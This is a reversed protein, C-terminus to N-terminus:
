DSANASEYAATSADAEAILDEWPWRVTAYKRYLLLQRDVVAMESTADNYALVLGRGESDIQISEFRELVTRLNGKQIRQERAHAREYIKDISLGGVLEEDTSALIAAMAHAYIGTSKKRTRIGASVRKAFQQYRPNLQDAYEMTAFQLAELDGIKMMAPQEHTIKLHDLLQLTLKQLIGANGFSDHTAVEELSQSFELNLAEGGDQLVRKLEEKTWFVSLEHVRGTLDPNLYLIMNSESWVGVVVTFLGYDWLAKLDFSFNRGEDVSLYHFDEIVLRRDSALILEAVFKLDSIDHGVRASKESGKAEGFTELKVGLKALLKLGLEGSAEVRGKVAREHVKEVVLTVDL